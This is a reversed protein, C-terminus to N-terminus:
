ENADGELVYFGAESPHDLVLSDRREKRLLWVIWIDGAAASIFFIGWVLLWLNGTCLAAIAPAIGLVVCPMIGGLTYGPVRLPENCHCYPTLLKWIVGFRISRWGGPAFCAWTIGHVLEHVAIGILIAPIAVLLGTIGSLSQGFSVRGGWIIFFPVMLAVAAVVLLIVAFVNAKVIDITVKRKKYKEYKGYEEM